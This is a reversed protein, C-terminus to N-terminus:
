PRDLRHWFDRLVKSFGGRCVGGELRQWFKPIPRELSKRYKGNGFKPIYLKPVCGRPTLPLVGQTIINGKVHILAIIAAM